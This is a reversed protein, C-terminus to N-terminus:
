PEPTCAPRSQSNFWALDDETNVSRVPRSLGLVHIPVGQDLLRLQELGEAMEADGRPYRGFAELVGRRYCYAGVHKRASEPDAIPSRSFYIARDYRDVLVKVENWDDWGPHDPNGLKPWPAAYTAVLVSKHEALYGLLRAIEAASLDPEDCQLDLIVRL